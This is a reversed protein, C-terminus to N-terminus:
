TVFLGDVLLRLERDVKRRAAEQDEAQALYMAVETLAGQILHALVDPDRRRLEGSAIAATIAERLLARGYRGEIERMREWGILGPADLLIIRQVHPDLTGEIFARFGALARARTDRARTNYAEIIRTFLAEHEAVFVAEFLEEKTGFHHYLAGKTVGAGAVVADLSTAAYGDRAFRERAVALIRRTTTESREAQTRRPRRSAKESRTAM